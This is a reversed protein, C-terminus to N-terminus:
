GFETISALTPHTSDEFVWRGRDCAPPPDEFVRGVRCKRRNTRCEASHNGINPNYMGLLACLHENADFFPLIDSSEGLDGKVKGDLLAGLTKLEAKAQGKRLAITKLQAM